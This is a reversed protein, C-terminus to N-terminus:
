RAVEIQRLLATQAPLIKILAEDLDFFRVDDVEPFTKRVGSAPPWEIEFTSRGLTPSTEEAEFSWCRVTKGGKQKIPELERFPAAAKLGTEEFFERKAATLPDEGTEALGKPVSWAGLDKSRWYPGGPHVLLVRLPGPVAPTHMLIGYSVQM